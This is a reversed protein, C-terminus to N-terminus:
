NGFRFSVAVLRSPLQEGRTPGSASLPDPLAPLSVRGALARQGAIDAGSDLEATAWHNYSTSPSMQIDAMVISDGALQLTGERFPCGRPGAAERLHFCQELETGRCGTKKEM